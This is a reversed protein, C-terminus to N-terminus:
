IIIDLLLIKKGSQFPLHVSFIHDHDSFNLPILQLDDSYSDEILDLVQVHTEWLFNIYFIIYSTGSM